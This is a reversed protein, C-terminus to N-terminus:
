IYFDTILLRAEMLLTAIAAVVAGNTASTFFDPAKAKSKEPACIVLQATSTLEM